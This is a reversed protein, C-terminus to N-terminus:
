TLLLKKKKKKQFCAFLKSLTNISYNFFFITAMNFSNVAKHSDEFKM